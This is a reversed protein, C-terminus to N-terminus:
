TRRAVASQGALCAPLPRAVLPSLAILLYLSQKDM